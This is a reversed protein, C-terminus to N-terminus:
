RKIDPRQLCNSLAICFEKHSKNSFEKKEINLRARSVIDLLIPCFLEAVLTTTDKQLFLKSLTQLLDQRDSASWVQLTCLTYNM